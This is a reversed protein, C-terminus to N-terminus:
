SWYYDGFAETWYKKPVVMISKCEEPYAIIPLLMSMLKNGPLYKRFIMIVMFHITIDHQENYQMHIEYSKRSREGKICQVIEKLEEPVVEIPMEKYMFLKKALKQLIEPDENVIPDRTYIINAPCDCKPEDDFLIENAQVICGYYIMGKEFLKDYEDYLISLEDNEMWSPRSLGEEKYPYAEYRKRIQELENKFNVMQRIQCTPKQVKTEVKDGFIKAVKNRWVDFISM